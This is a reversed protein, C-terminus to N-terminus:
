CQGTVSMFDSLHLLPCSCLRRSDLQEVTIDVNLENIVQMSSDQELDAGGYSSTSVCLDSQVQGLGPGLQGCGFGDRGPLSFLLSTATSVSSHGDSRDKCLLFLKQVLQSDM